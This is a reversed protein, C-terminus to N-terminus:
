WFSISTVGRETIGMARSRYILVNEIEPYKAFVKRFKLMLNLKLGFM